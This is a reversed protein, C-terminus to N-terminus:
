DFTNRKGSEKTKTNYWYTVFNCENSCENFILSIVNNEMIQYDDVIGREFKLNDKPVQYLINDNEDVISIKNNSNVIIYIESSKEYDYAWEYVNNYKKSTKILKGNLDYVYYYNSSESPYMIYLKNNLKVYNVIKGDFIPNLDKDYLVVRSINADTDFAYYEFDSIYNMDLYRDINNNLHSPLNKKTKSTINYAIKNGDNIIIYNYAGVIYECNKNDCKYVIKEDNEGEEGSFWGTEKDRYIVIENSSNVNETQQNDQSKPSETKDDKKIFLLYILVGLLAVIIISLVVIEINKRKELKKNEEM